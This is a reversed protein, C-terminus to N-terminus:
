SSLSSTQRTLLVEEKRWARILVYVFIYETEQTEIKHEHKENTNHTTKQMPLWGKVKSNNTTTYALRRQFWFKRGDGDWRERERHAKRRSDSIGRVWYIRRAFRSSFLIPMVQIFNWTIQMWKSSRRRTQTLSRVNGSIVSKRLLVAGHRVIWRIM